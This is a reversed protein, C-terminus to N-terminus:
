VADNLQMLIRIHRIRAERLNQAVSRDFAAKMLKKKEEQLEVMREEISGKMIYRHIKVNRQQGLRHVRDAAQDEVAPNWFPEAIHAHSARTLNLGVGGAKLSVLFVRPVDADEAATAGNSANFQRLITERERAPTKGDLRVYALGETELLRGLIDLMSTFRSFVVHCEDAHVALEHRLTAMIAKVKAGNAVCCGKDTGGGVGGKEKEGGGRGEETPEPEPEPEVIDNHSIPARCLPCKAKDRSIVNHICRVCFVHCCATICVQEIEYLCVPCEPEEGVNKLLGRLAAIKEPSLATSPLAATGAGDASQNDVLAALAASSFVPEHGVLSEDCCIQRLRLIVELVATYNAMLTGAALHRAVLARGAAEWRLYKARSTEDMDVDVVYMDRSPLSLIPRGDRTTDKTRRLSVAGVLTQLRKVSDEQGMLFPREIVRRYLSLDTGIPDLKLFSILGYLDQLSNQIPTGTLGWRRGDEVLKLKGLTKAMLTNPNKITHAEDCVVRYWKVGMLGNKIDSESSLTSYTSIVVDHSGIFTSRRDRDTGHYTLVSLTGPRAHQEFQMAWGSMVSLPCIILTPKTPSPASASAVQASANKPNKGGRQQKQTKKQKKKKPALDEDDFEKDEEEEQKMKKLAEDAAVVAVDKDAAILAMVTLTKGLGMADALMGGRMAKPKEQTTHNCLTHVYGGKESDEEWFVPLGQGAEQDLMWKLAEKQHPYLPTTIIATNPEAEERPGDRKVM